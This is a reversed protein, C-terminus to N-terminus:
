HANHNDAAKIVEPDKLLRDLVENRKYNQTAYRRGVSNNAYDMQHEAPTNDTKGQEHADTVKKAFEEGYAKTLLYSWLVHRYADTPVVSHEEHALIASEQADNRIQLLRPAKFPNQSLLEIEPDTLKEAMIWSIVQLSEKDMTVKSLPGMQQVFLKANVTENKIRFSCTGSFSLPVTTTGSHALGLLDQTLSRAQHKISGLPWIKLPISLSLHGDKVSTIGDPAATGLALEQDQISASITNVIVSIRNSLLGTKSVKLDVMHLTVSKGALWEHGQEMAIKADASPWIITLDALNVMPKPLDLHEVTIGNVTKGQLAGAIKESYSQALQNLNLSTIIGLLAVLLVGAAGLSIIKKM